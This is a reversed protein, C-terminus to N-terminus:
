IRDADSVEKFKKWKTTGIIMAYLFRVKLSVAIKVPLGM